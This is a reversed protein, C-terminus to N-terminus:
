RVLSSRKALHVQLRADKWVAVIKASVLDIDVLRPWTPQSSATSDPSASNAAAEVCEDETTRPPQGPGDPQKMRSKSSEHASSSSRPRPREQSSM